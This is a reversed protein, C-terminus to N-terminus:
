SRPETRSVARTFSRSRIASGSAQAISTSAPTAQTTMVQEVLNTLPEIGTMPAIQGFVTAHHVDYAAMYALTGGRVYEFEVGAHRGPGPPLGPHKRRLAQLQSKEDASIV